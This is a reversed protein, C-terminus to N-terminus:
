QANNIVIDEGFWKNSIEAATGDTTCQDLASQLQEILETNGKAAAIGYQESGFDDELIAFDKNNEALFYRAVIEDAVVADVRGIELDNFALVNTDYTPMEAFEASIEDANVADVASSGTQVGVKKGALDAKAKIDSDGKVIIIQRNDLYPKTFEMSALREETITFGNWILDIKGTSLDMEKSDWDIPKFEAAIGMKEACANALDIDFGVIQNNEDRFGMPPFEDDLGIVMKGSDKSWTPAAAEEAAAAAETTPQTDAAADGNNVATQGGCGGLTFLICATTLIGILKKM